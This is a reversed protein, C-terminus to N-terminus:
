DEYSDAPNLGNDTALLEAQQLYDLACAIEEAATHAHGDEPSITDLAAAVLEATAADSLEISHRSNRLATLFLGFHIAALHAGPRPRRTTIPTATAAAHM